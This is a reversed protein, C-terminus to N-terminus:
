KKMAQKDSVASGRASSSTFCSTARLRRGHRYIYSVMISSPTLMAAVEASVAMIPSLLQSSSSLLICSAVFAVFSSSHRPRSRITPPCRTPEERLRTSGLCGLSGAPLGSAAPTNKLSQAPITARGRGYMEVCYAGPFKITEM